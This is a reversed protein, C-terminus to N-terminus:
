RYPNLRLIFWDAIARSVEVLELAKRSGIGENLGHAIRNRRDILFMLERRLRQDDENLFACLDQALSIDFRGVAEELAEPGPNRGRELWSRAFSRVLGGSRSDIYYRSVELVTQELYGCSRVVLLRALWDRVHHLEPDTLFRVTLSLEQLQRELSTVEWPPWREIQKM